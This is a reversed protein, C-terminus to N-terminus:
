YFFYLLFALSRLTDFSSFLWGSKNQFVNFLIFLGHQTFTVISNFSRKTEVHTFFSTHCLCKLLQLIRRPGQYFIYFTVDFDWLLQLISVSIKYFVFISM